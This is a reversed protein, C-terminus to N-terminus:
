KNDDVIERIMANVIGEATRWRKLLEAVYDAVVPLQQSRLLAVIQDGAEEINVDSWSALVLKRYEEDHQLRFTESDPIM